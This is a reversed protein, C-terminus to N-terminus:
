PKWREMISALPCIRECTWGNINKKNKEIRISMYLLAPKMQRRWCKASNIRKMKDVYLLIEGM